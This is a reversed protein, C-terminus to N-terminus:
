LSLTRRESISPKVELIKAALTDATHILPVLPYNTCAYEYLTQMEENVPVHWPGMHYRIALVEDENLPYGHQLLWIVSAEGHGAPFCSFDKEYEGQANLSYRGSKCVDHCLSAVILSNKSVSFDCRLVRMDNALLTAVRYVNMSHELLGGEYSLHDRRSAPSHFFGIRELGSIIDETHPRNVSRLLDCFSDKLEM